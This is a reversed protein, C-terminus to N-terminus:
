FRRLIAGKQRADGETLGREGSSDCYATALPRFPRVDLPQLLHTTHALLCLLIIKLTICFQLAETIIHSQHGDLILIRYENKTYITTPNFCKKLWELCLENDTWGNELLAIYGEELMEIWALNQKKAKFIM